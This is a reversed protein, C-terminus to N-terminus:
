SREGTLRQQWSRLRAADGELASAKASLMHPLSDACAALAKDRERFTRGAWEWPGDKRRQWVTIDTGPIDVKWADGTWSIVREHIQLRFPVGQVHVVPARERLRTLQERQERRREAEMREAREYIANEWRTSM